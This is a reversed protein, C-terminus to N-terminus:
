IVHVLNISSDIQTHSCHYRMYIQLRLAEFCHFLLIVGYLGSLHLRQLIRQSLKTVKRHM